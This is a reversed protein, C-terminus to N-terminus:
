VSSPSVTTTVLKGIELLFEAPPVPKLLLHFDHGRSRAEEVLQPTEPHGSFLLVRCEPHQERMQIAFEIGSIGPMTVDSILLDPAKSHAASLAEKASTFSKTAFGNKQLIIALTTAIVPEDDVVFIETTSFSCV